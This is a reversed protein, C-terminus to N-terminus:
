PGASFIGNLLSFVVSAVIVIGVIRLFLHRSGWMGLYWLGFVIGAVIGPITLNRSWFFIGAGLVPGAVASDFFFGGWDIEDSVELGQGSPPPGPTHPTPALPRACRPCNEALTSVQEGCDPCGMTESDESAAVEEIEKGEERHPPRLREARESAAPDEGAVRVGEKWYGEPKLTGCKWCRSKKLGFHRECSPCYWTPYAM